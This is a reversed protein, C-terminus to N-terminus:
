GLHVRRLMSRIAAQPAMPAPTGSAAVLTDVAQSIAVGVRPPQEATALSPHANSLILATCAALTGALGLAFTSRGGALAHLLVALVSAAMAVGVVILGWALIPQPVGALHGAGLAAVAMALASSGDRRLMALGTAAAFALTLMLYVPVGNVLNM